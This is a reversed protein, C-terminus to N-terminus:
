HSTANRALSFRSPRLGYGFPLYGAVASGSQECVPQPSGRFSRATPRQLFYKERSRTDCRALPCNPVDADPLHCTRRPNGPLVLEKRPEILVRIFLSVLHQPPFRAGECRRSSQEVQACSRTSREAPREFRSAKPPSMRRWCHMTRICRSAILGIELAQVATIVLAPATGGPLTPM